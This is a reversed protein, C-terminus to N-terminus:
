GLVEEVRGKREQKVNGTVMALKSLDSSVERRFATINRLKSNRGIRKLEELAQIIEARDNELERKKKQAKIIAKKISQINKDVKELKKLAQAELELYTIFSEPEVLLGIDLDLENELQEKVNGAIYTNLGDATKSPM